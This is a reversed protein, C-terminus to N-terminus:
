NDCLWWIWLNYRQCMQGAYGPPNLGASISCHSASACKLSTCCIGFINKINRLITFCCYKVNSCRCATPVGTSNNRLTQIMLSNQYINFGQEMYEGLGKRDEESDVSTHCLAAYHQRTTTWLHPSPLVPADLASMFVRLFGFIPCWVTVHMCHGDCTQLIALQSLAQSQWKYEHIFESIMCLHVSEEWVSVWM